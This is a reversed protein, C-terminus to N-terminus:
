NGQRRNFKKVQDQYRVAELDRQHVLLYDRIELMIGLIDDAPLRISINTTPQGDPQIGGTATSKGPGIKITIRFPFRAFKEGQPDFEIKFVRSEIQGDRESGGFIEKAWGDRVRNGLIDHIILKAKTVPLYCVARDTHQRRQPDYNVLEVKLKEIGIAEFFNLFQKNTAYEYIAYPLENAGQTNQAM